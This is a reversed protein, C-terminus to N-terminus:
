RTKMKNSTEDRGQLLRGVRYGRSDSRRLIVQLKVMNLGRVELNRANTTRARRSRCVVATGMQKRGRDGRRRRGNPGSRVSSGDNRLLEPNLYQATDHIRACDRSSVRTSSQSRASRGLNIHIRATQSDTTVGTDAPRQSNMCDGNGNSM